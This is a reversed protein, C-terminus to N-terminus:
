NNNLIQLKIKLLIVIESNIIINTIESDKTKKNLENFYEVTKIKKIELDIYDILKDM